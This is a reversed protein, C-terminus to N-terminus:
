QKMLLNDLEKSAVPITSSFRLSQGAFIVFVTRFQGFDIVLLPRHNVEQKILARSLSLSEVEMFFPKLGAMKLMSAYSDVIKKPTAAILVEMSESSSGDKLIAKDTQVVEFDFYVEDLPIPIYNAAEFLVAKGVEEKKLNPLRLVDVFSKEEPLSVAVYKSKIKGGKVESITKKILNALENEKKIEGQEIIGEPIEAQGYIFRSSQGAKNGLQVVKLSTDSFNLAFGDIKTSFINLM